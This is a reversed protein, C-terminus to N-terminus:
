LDLWSIKFLQFKCYLTIKSPLQSVAEQQFLLLISLLYSKMRCVLLLSNAREHVTGEIKKELIPNDSLTTSPLLNWVQVSQNTLNPIKGYSMLLSKCM